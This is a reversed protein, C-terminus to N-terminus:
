NSDEDDNNEDEHMRLYEFRLRIQQSLIDLGSPKTKQPPKEEKPKPKLRSRSLAIQEAMSLEKPKEKVEVEVKKKLGQKAKALEDELSIEPGGSKVEKAAPAKSPITPVMPPPPPPPPPPPISSSNGVVVQVPSSQVVPSPNPPKQPIKQPKPQTQAIVPNNQPPPPPPPPPVPNTNVQVNNQQPQAQSINNSSINESNQNNNYSINQLTEFKNQNKYRIIDIPLDVEIDQNELQPDIQNDERFDDDEDIQEENKNEEKKEDEDDEGGVNIVGKINLNTPINLGTIKNKNVDPKFTVKKTKINKIREQNKISVPAQAINERKKKESQKRENLYDQLIISSGRNTDQQPNYQQKKAYDIKMKTGFVFDNTVHNLIPEFDDFDQRVNIEQSTIKDLLYVIDNFQTAFSLYKDYTDIKDKTALSKSGLKEKDNLVIRNLKPISEPNIKTLSQDIITPTYYSHNKTPYHYKSKLTIAEAISSYSAIIKNARNIRAKINCLKNVRESFATNLRNFITNKTNELLELSNILDSLVEKSYKENTLIPFNIETKM